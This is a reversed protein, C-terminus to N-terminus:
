VVHKNLDTLAKMIRERSGLERKKGFVFSRTKLDVGKFEEGALPTKAHM